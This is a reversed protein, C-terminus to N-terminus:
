SIVSQSAQTGCVGVGRQPTVKRTGGRPAPVLWGGCSAGQVGASPVPHLPPHFSTEEAGDGDSRGAERKAVERERNAKFRTDLTGDAKWRM